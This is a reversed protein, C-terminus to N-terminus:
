LKEGLKNLIDKRKTYLKDILVDSFWGLLAAVVHQGAIDYLYNYDWEYHASAVKFVYGQLGVLILTVLWILGFDDWMVDFYKKWTIKSAGVDFVDKQKKATLLIVLIAAGFGFLFRPEVISFVVSIVLLIVFLFAIQKRM